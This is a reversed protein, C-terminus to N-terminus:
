VVQAPWSFLLDGLRLYLSVLFSAACLILDHLYILAYRRLARSNM